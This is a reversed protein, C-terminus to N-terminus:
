GAQTKIQSAYQHLTMSYQREDQIALEGQSM